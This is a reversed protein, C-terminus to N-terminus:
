YMQEKSVTNLVSSKNATHKEIDYMYKISQDSCKMRHKSVSKKSNIHFNLFIM